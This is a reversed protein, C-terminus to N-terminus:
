KYNRHKLMLFSSRSGQTEYLPKYQSSEGKKGAMRTAPKGALIRQQVTSLDFSISLFRFRDSKLDFRVIKVEFRGNKLDFRNTLAELVRFCDSHPTWGNYQPSTGGNVKV